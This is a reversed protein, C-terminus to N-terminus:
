VFLCGSKKLKFVREDKFCRCHLEFINLTQKPCHKKPTNDCIIFLIEDYKKIKGQSYFFITNWENSTVANQTAYSLASISTIINNNNVNILAYKNACHQM